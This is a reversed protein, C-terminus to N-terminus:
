SNSSDAAGPLYATARPSLTPNTPVTLSPTTLHRRGNSAIRHRLYADHNASERPTPPEGTGTARHADFARRDVADLSGLRPPRVRISRVGTGGMGGDASRTTPRADPGHPREGRFPVVASSDTDRSCKSCCLGM